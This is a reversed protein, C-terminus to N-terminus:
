VAPDARKFRYIMRNDADSFQADVFGPLARIEKNDDNFITALELCTTDGVRVRGFIAPPVDPLIYDELDMIRSFSMKDEQRAGLARDLDEQSWIMLWGRFVCDTSLLRPKLPAGLFNVFSEEFKEFAAALRAEFQSRDEVAM